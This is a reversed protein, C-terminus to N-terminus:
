WTYVVVYLVKARGMAPVVARLAIQQAGEKVAPASQYALTWNQGRYVHERIVVEVPRVRAASRESVRLGRNRKPGPARDHNLPTCIPAFTMRPETPACVFWKRTGGLAPVSVIASSDGVM